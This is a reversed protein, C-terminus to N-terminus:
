DEVVQNQLETPFPLRQIRAISGKQLTRNEVWEAVLQQGNVSYLKWNLKYEGFGPLQIEKAQGNWNTQLLPRSSHGGPSDLWQFSLSFYTNGPIQGVVEIRFKPSEEIIIRQNQLPEFITLPQYGGAELVLYEAGQGLKLNSNSDHMYYYHGDYRLLSSEYQPRLGTADMAQSYLRANKTFPKGSEGVIEFQTSPILAFIDVEQLKPPIAIQGCEIKVEGLSIRQTTYWGVNIHIWAEYNGCPINNEVRRHLHRPFGEWAQLDALSVWDKDGFVSKLSLSAPIEHDLYYSFELGGIEPLKVDMDSQNNQFIKEAFVKEKSYVSVKWRGTQRYLEKVRAFKYKGTESSSTEPSIESWESIGNVAYPSVQEYYLWVRCGGAPSGDANRIAGQAFIPANGAEIEGLNAGVTFINTPVSVQSSGPWHIPGEESIGHSLNPSVVAKVPSSALREGKSNFGKFHHTSVFFGFRGDRDVSTSYSNGVRKGNSDMFQITAITFPIENNVSGIQGVVKPHSNLDITLMQNPNSNTPGDIIQELTFSEISALRRDKIRLNLQQNFPLGAFIISGSDTAKGEVWKWRKSDTPLFLNLDNVACLQVLPEFENGHVTLELSGSEQVQIALENGETFKLDPIQIAEGFGGPLRPRIVLRPQLNEKEFRSKIRNWYRGSVTLEVAGNEDCHGGALTRGEFFLAKRSENKEPMDLSLSLPYGAASTGDPYTARVKILLSAFVDIIIERAGPPPELTNPSQFTCLESGVWGSKDITVFRNGENVQLEIEGHEDTIGSVPIYDPIRFLATDSDPLRFESERYYNERDSMVRVRAGKVPLSTEPDIARILVKEVPGEALSHQTEITENRIAQINAEEVIGAVSVGNLPNEIAEVSNVEALNGDPSASSKPLVLEVVMWALLVSCVAFSGTAFSVSPLIRYKMGLAVCNLRWDKGWRRQMDKRLSDLGRKLRSRVTNVSTRERRSIKLASWGEFYHWLVTRRYPEPLRVVAEAIIRRHEARELLQVPDLPDQERSRLSSIERQLERLRRRDGSRMQSRGLNLMVKRLWPQFKGKDKPGTRLAVEISDQILDDSDFEGNRALSRALPQLWDADALLANLEKPM